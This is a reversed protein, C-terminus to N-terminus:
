WASAEGTGAVYSEPYAIIRDRPLWCGAEVAADADMKRLIFYPDDHLTVLAAQPEDGSLSNYGLLYCQNAQSIVVLADMGANSMLVRVKNLRDRYEHTEFAQVIKRDNMGFRGRLTTM